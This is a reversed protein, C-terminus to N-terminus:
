NVLYERFSPITRYHAFTNGRDYDRTSASLVEVILCPNTITDDREDPFSPEGAVVVLDAYTYLNTHPISLRMDSMFLVFNLDDIAPFILGHVNSVILNHNASTGAMPIVVGDHYESKFPALTEQVLYEAPSILTTVTM